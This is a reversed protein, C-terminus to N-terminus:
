KLEISYSCPDLELIYTKGVWDTMQEENIHKGPESVDGM